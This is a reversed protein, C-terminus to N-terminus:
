GGLLGLVLPVVTLVVFAPLLCLGMPVVVLVGLRNAAVSHAAVERRRQEAATARVLAGPALGTDAALGLAEVIPALGEPEGLGAEHLHHRLTQLALNVPLGAELLAVVLDAIVASPVVAAPPPTPPAVAAPPPAPGASVLPRPSPRVLVLAAFVLLGALTSALGPGVTISGLSM